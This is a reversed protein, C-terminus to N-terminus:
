GLMLKSVGGGVETSGEAEQGKECINGRCINERNLRKRYSLTSSRAGAPGFFGSAGTLVNGRLKGKLAIIKQWSSRFGIGRLGKLLRRM